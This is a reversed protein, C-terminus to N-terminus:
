KKGADGPTFKKLRMRVTMEGIVITQSVIGINEAFHYTSTIPTDNVNLELTVPYAKFKGAPVDVETPEGAVGKIEVTETGLKTKVTWSAGPKFPYPIIRVPPDVEVGNFRHRFVGTESIALHETGATTGDVDGDIQALYKGEVNEVKTITYTMTTKAGASEMEFEWRNGSQLPYLNLNRNPKATPLPAAIAPLAVFMAAVVPCRYM